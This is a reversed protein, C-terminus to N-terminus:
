HAERVVRFGVGPLALNAVQSARRATQLSNAPKNFAGGRQIRQDCGLSEWPSGDGPAGRYSDHYCDKVWEAANGSTDYLGFPNAAFSGVPATRNGDWRSGCNFCNANNRGVEYGWWYFTTTGGSAAYEWEAESPLRYTAGTRRSLWQTYAVANKWTVNIVPRDGRGWGNDSPLSRGTARAFRDYEDFTVEKEGIYFDGVQVPHEPRQDPALPDKNSGM